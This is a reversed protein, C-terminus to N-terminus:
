ALHTPKYYLTMTHVAFPAGSIDVDIGLKVYQCSQTLWAMAESAAAGGSYESIGYEAVGYEDASGEITVNESAANTQFDTWYSLSATVTATTYCVAKFRKLLKKLEDPPVLMWGSHWRYRYSAGNDAYGSYKGIRGNFGFYTANAVTNMLATPAISWTTLRLGGDPTKGRIDVCYTIGADPHSLLVFADTPSYVGRIKTLDGSGVGDALFQRNSPSVDRDPAAYEQITRALTRIGQPSWFIVDLEGVLVVADRSIAGMNEIVTSVYINTPDLGLESGAGDTWIVVHRKGFVVLSAGYAVIAVVEDTGRTWVSRMDISGGGDAPAWRTEDLLACYRITQKDDDVAWIRGYAACATNGDPLTGSAATITTFSGTGSWVIPTHSAQWGVVKNNFNQFKWNGATPAGAPTIDTLAGTLGSYIKTATASIVITTADTKVYEHLQHITPDGSIATNQLVWGKRSALRGAADIVVNDAKAAWDPTMAVHQREKALGNFAPNPIVFPRVTM